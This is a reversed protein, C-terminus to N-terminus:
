VVCAMETFAFENNWNSNMKKHLTRAPSNLHMGNSEVNSFNQMKGKGQEM